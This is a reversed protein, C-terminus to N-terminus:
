DIITVGTGRPIIAFLEEVDENLMRICGATEQEYIPTPDDSGHIGYGKKNIGMWRTGLINEPSDPPVIAGEHYWVPNEIKNIIKFEGVPTSNNSGTAIPYLKIFENNATLLLQRQSKDIVVNYNGNPVKLTKGPHITDSKLRNARRIFDVTTGYYSAIRSLSEGPKVEHAIDWETIKPSFLLAVNVHGMNEQARETLPSEPFRELMMSYTARAESLLDQAQYVEGLKLLADDIWPSETETAILEELHVQAEEYRQEDAAHSALTYLRQGKGSFAGQQNVFVLLSIGGIIVTTIVAAVLLQRRM